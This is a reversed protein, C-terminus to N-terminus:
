GEWWGPSNYTDGGIASAGEQYHEGNVAQESEPYLYRVPYRDGNLNDEPIPLEPYGTRRINFWAEHGNLFLAIWKQTMIRKLDNSGNLAVDPDTLYGSPMSRDYYAFSAQIGEQYYSSASGGILGKHAAEALAFQLESYRMFQANV